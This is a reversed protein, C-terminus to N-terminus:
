NLREAMDKSAVVSNAGERVIVTEFQGQTNQIFEVYTQEEVDDGQLVFQNPAIPVLARQGVYLTNNKLSFYRTKPRPEDASIFGRELATYKDGSVTFAGTFQNLWKANIAPEYRYFPRYFPWDFADAVARRIEEYLDDGNSGNTFVVLGTGLNLHGEMWAKYSQNSGGHRFRRLEGAGSMKPGLGFKGFGVETMMQQALGHELYNHNGQYSKMLAIMLHAYDSPTSWLGSAAMEPFTHWGRPKAELKGSADHAKAINGFEKPLPNEFTSRTMKLPKFLLDETAIEFPQKLVDEFLLQIITTGGGSYRWSTGPQYFTRVPKTRSLGTGKLTELVTPTKEHPEFDPFGWLSLGATHSLIGRLTVKDINTYQSAPVRWQKLYTNVDTDLAIQKQSTLSLVAAATAVKSLSGVSFVTNEDVPQATGAEKLGYGKAFVVKYNEIVAISVGPVNFHAMRQSLSWKTPNSKDLVSDRLGNEMMQAKANISKDENANSSTSIALLLVVPAIPLARSYTAM